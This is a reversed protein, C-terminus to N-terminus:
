PGPSGMAQDPPELGCKNLVEISLDQDLMVTRSDPWHFHREVAFRMRGAMM